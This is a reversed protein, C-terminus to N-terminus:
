PVSSEGSTRSLTPYTSTSGREAAAERLHNHEAPRYIPQQYAQKVPAPAAVPNRQWSQYLKTGRNKPTKRESVNYVEALSIFTLATCVMRYSILTHAKFRV